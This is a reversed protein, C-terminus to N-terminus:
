EKLAKSNTDLVQIWTNGPNLALKIGLDNFFTMDGEVNKWTGDYKKGNTYYIIKGSGSFDIEIHGKETKMSKHPAYLVIVNKVSIQKETVRDIHPKGELFRLYRQKKKDYEYAVDTFSNYSIEFKATDVANQSTNSGFEFSPNKPQESFKPLKNTLLYANHPAVRSSDREFYRTETYIGDVHPVSLSELKQYAFKSGGFHIYPTNWDEAIPLYYHRSSRVPGIKSPIKDNFVAYFRTIKAEAEMEYVVDADIIGTQPRANESNEVMVGFYNGSEKQISLGTTTSIPYDPLDVPNPTVVETKPEEKPKEEVPEDKKCAALLLTVTLGLIMLKKM